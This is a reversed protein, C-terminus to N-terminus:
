RQCVIQLEDYLNSMTDRRNYRQMSKTIWRCNDPEYNGYPDVRDITLDEQYGNQLSWEMFNSFNHWDSCVTVGKEGYYKYSKVKKNRCRNLMGAWIGHLRTGSLGHTKRTNASITKRSCGCSKTHGSRLYELRVTTEKGCDCKCLVMRIKYKSWRQSAIEKVVTLKEYKYGAVVKIRRNAM